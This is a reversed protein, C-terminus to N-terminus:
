YLIESYTFAIQLTKKSIYLTETHMVVFIYVVEIIILLVYLAALIFDGKESHRQTILGM